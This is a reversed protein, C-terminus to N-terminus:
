DLRAHALQGPKWGCQAVTYRAAGAREVPGLAVVLLLLLILFAAVVTQRALGGSPLAFRHPKRVPISQRSPEM